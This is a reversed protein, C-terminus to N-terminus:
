ESLSSVSKWSRQRLSPTVTMKTWGWIAGAEALATALAMPPSTLVKSGSALSIGALRLAAAARITSLKSYDGARAFDIVWPRVM